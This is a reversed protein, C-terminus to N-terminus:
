QQAPSRIRGTRSPFITGELKLATDATGYVLLTGLISSGKLDVSPANLAELAAQAEQM